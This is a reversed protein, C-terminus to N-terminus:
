AAAVPQVRRVDWATEIAWLQKAAIPLGRCARSFTPFSISTQALELQRYANWLTGFADLFQDRLVSSLEATRTRPRGNSSVVKLTPM